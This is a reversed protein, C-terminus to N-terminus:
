EIVEDARALISAPIELGLATATKMNVVFEFRTPQEVPLDAPQAGKLIKDVYGAARRYLDAWLAGYSMLGGEDVFDRTPYVAPLRHKAALKVLRSRENLLLVSGLVIVAEARAAVVDSFAIEFGEPGGKVEIFQLSVGLGRAAADAEDFIAQQTGMPYDRHWVAAVRKSTVAVQKLLELEKGVLEPGISTLGTINGGPRGITAVLGSTVPDAVGAFVIPVSSTLKKAALAALTNAAVIVDVDLGVLEAMIEPFRDFRGDASRWEILINRGEVYGLDHLGRRFAEPLHPSVALNTSVYGIRPTHTTQEGRASLMRLPVAAAMVAILERRRM